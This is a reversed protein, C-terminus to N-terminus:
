RILDSLSSVLGDVLGNNVAGEGDFVNGQMADDPVDSRNESVHAKFADYVDDCEAQLKARDSDSMPKWPAGLLKDSGASIANVVIGENALQRSIDQYISFVGISGVRVSSTCYIEDAGAALYYAGSCMSRDTFAIVKKNIGAIRAAMEPIGPLTGGPSDFHLLIEDISDDDEAVDLIEDLDDLNYGGSVMEMMSLRKGIIGFIPVVLQGGMQEPEDDDDNPDIQVPLNQGSLRAELIRQIAQHKEPTILWPEDYVKSIIHPYNKM